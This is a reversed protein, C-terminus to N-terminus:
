GRSPPFAFTFTCSGLLSDNKSMSFNVKQGVNEMKEKMKMMVIMSMRMYRVVRM